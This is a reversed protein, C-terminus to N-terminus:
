NYHEWTPLLDNKHPKSSYVSRAIARALCNSAAVGIELTDMIPNNLDRKNTSVCFILDGDAQTHSPYIARAIGDHAVTAVRKCEAKTIDADTAVIAITTNDLTSSNEMTFSPLKAKRSILYDSITKDYNTDVGLNGFEGNMEFPAAWFHKDGNTVVSGLPNSVVLAGVTIGSTLVVSASGLGGKLSGTLAGTGGGVNGIEFDESLAEYAKRGLTRYPNEEWSDQQGAYLDFIIAGPVIPIVSGTRTQYGKGEKLLFDMVGSCADLGFASGGSLVLADIKKVLKDPELLDTDKTGPSGGMVQYSATMNKDSSLVTTGSRLTYDSANGVRIGPVDTILNRSGPKMIEGM